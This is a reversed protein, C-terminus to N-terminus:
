AFANVYHLWAEGGEQPDGPYADGFVPDGPSGEFRREFPIPVSKSFFLLEIEVTISAKGILDNRTVGSPLTVKEMGLSVHFTVSVSIIGIVRMEGRLEAFADLRVAAATMKFYIGVRVNVCGAAVGLNIALAAQAELTFELSRIGGTDLEVAFFGGGGVLLVIVSFPAHREGFNLRLSPATGLFPLEFRAGFGLNNLQFAGFQLSPLVLSYGAVVGSATVDLMPPDTFATRPVLDALAQVFALPGIFTFAPTEFDLMLDPKQGPVLSFELQEFNISIAKFLTISFADLRAKTAAGTGTTVNLSFKCDGKPMFDIQGTEDKWSGVNKTLSLAVGDPQRLMTLAPVEPTPEGESEGGESQGGSGAGFGTLLKGIPLVGLLKMDPLLKAPDFAGAGFEALQQAVTTSPTGTVIGFRSSLGLVDVRPTALAGVTETTAEGGPQFLSLPKTLQLIVEGPNALGLRHADSWKAWRPSRVNALEAAGPVDVEAEVVQPVFSLGSSTEAPAYTIGFRLAQVPVALERGAAAAAALQIVSDVRATRRAPPLLGYNGPFKKFGAENVARVKSAAVAMMALVFRAPRGSRDRAVCAFEVIAEAPDVVLAETEFSSGDPIPVRKTTIEVSEFPFTRGGLALDAPTFRVVPENVVLFTRRVLLAVPGGYSGQERTTVKVVAARHGFPLLHVTRVIEVHADRGLMTRQTFSEVDNIAEPGPTWAGDLAFFGGLASLDVRDARIPAMSSNLGLAVLDELDSPKDPSARHDLPLTGDDDVKALPALEVPRVTGGTLRSHWLESRPGAVHPSRRHEFRGRGPAMLMRSLEVITADTLAPKPIELRPRPGIPSLGGSVDRWPNMSLAGGPVPVPLAGLAALNLGGTGSAQRQLQWGAQGALQGLIPAASVPSTRSMPEARPESMAVELQSEHGSFILPWIALANLIAELDLKLITTAEPARVVIWSPGSLLATLQLKPPLKGAVVTGETLHQPPFVVKLTAQRGADAVRAHPIGDQEVRIFNRFRARLLVMDSRRLLLLEESLALQALMAMRGPVMPDFDIALGPITLNAM